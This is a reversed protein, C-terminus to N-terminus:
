RAVELHATPKDDKSRETECYGSESIAVYSSCSCYGDENEICTKCNCVM